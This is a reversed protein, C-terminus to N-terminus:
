SPTYKIQIWDNGLEVVSVGPESSLRQLVCQKIKKDSTGIHTSTTYGARFARGLRNHILSLEETCEDEVIMEPSRYHQKYLNKVPTPSNM